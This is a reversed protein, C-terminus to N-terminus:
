EEDGYLWLLTKRAEIVAKEIQDITPIRGSLLAGTEHDIVPLNTPFSALPKDLVFKNNIKTATFQNVALFGANCQIVDGNLWFSGMKQTRYVVEKQQENLPWANDVAVEPSLVIEKSETHRATWEPKMMQNILRALDRTLFSGDEPVKEYATYSALVPDAEM